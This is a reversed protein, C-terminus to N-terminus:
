GEVVEVDAGLAELLQRVGEVAFRDPAKELCVEACEGTLIKRALRKVDSRSLKVVDLLRRALGTRQQGSWDTWSQDSKWGLVRVIIL